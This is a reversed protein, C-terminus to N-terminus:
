SQEGETPEVYAKGLRRKARAERAATWRRYAGRKGSERVGDAGLRDAWKRGSVRGGRRGITSLAKRQVATLKGGKKRRGITGLAKRQEETLKEGKKSKAM